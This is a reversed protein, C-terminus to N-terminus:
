GPSDSDKIPQIDVWIEETTGDEMEDRVALRQVATGQKLRRLVDETCTIYYTIKTLKKRTLLEDKM